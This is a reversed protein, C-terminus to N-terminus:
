KEKGNILTNHKNMAHIQNIHKITNHRTRLEYKGHKTLIKKSMGKLQNVHKLEEKIKFYAILWRFM